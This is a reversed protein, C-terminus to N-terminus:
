PNYKDIIDFWINLYHELDEKSIQNLSRQDYRVRRCESYLTYYDHSIEALHRRVLKIRAGHGRYKRGQPDITFTIQRDTLNATRHLCYDIKHLASYFTITILWDNYSFNNDKAWQIVSENYRWQNEHQQLNM